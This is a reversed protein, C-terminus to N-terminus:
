GKGSGVGKWKKGLAELATDAEPIAREENGGVAAEREEIAKREKLIRRMAKKENQRAYAMLQTYVGARCPKGEPGPVLDLGLDWKGLLVDEASRRLADAVLQSHAVDVTLAYRLEAKPAGKAYHRQSVAKRSRESREAATLRAASATGGRRGARAALEPMKVWPNEQAKGWAQREEKTWPCTKATAM